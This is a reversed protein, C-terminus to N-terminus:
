LHERGLRTAARERVARDVGVGEVSGERGRRGARAAGAKAAFRRVWM